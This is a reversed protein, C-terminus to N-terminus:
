KETVKTVQYNKDLKFVNLDNALFLNGSFEKRAEVEIDKISPSIAVDHQYRASFHTLILNKISEAEAFKAVQEAFSHMPGSGVKEAIDKTYTAEHILLDCDITEKKLLEPTDNDGGVIVKKPKSGKLQFDTLEITEGSSLKIYGEKQLEGWLPGKPVNSAILKETDLKVNKILEEFIFAYSPVRHSLQCTQLTFDEFSLPTDFTAIDIFQLPYSLHMDTAEITVEIFRKVSNPAIIILEETRGAMATTALLGPIGYCHDGHVHTICIARLKNLSLNTHLLRHQTGEGCDILYWHKNNISQLAIGTVNRTKTPIGSSTGLFTIKM